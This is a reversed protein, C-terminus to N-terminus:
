PPSNVDEHPQTMRDSLWPRRETPSIQREPKQLMRFNGPLQAGTLREHAHFDTGLHATKTATVSPPERGAQGRAPRRQAHLSSSDTHIERGAARGTARVRLTVNPNQSHATTGTAFPGSSGSRQRRAIVGATRSCQGTGGSYLLTTGPTSAGM